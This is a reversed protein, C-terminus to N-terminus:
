RLKTESNLCVTQVSITCQICFQMTWLYSHVYKYKYEYIYKNVKNREMSQSVFRESQNLFCTMCIQICVYQIHVNLDEGSQRICYICIDFM